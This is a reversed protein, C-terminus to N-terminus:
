DVALAREKIEDQLDIIKYTYGFSFDVYYKFALAISLCHVKEFAQFRGLERPGTEDFLIQEGWDFYLQGYSLGMAFPANFFHKLDLGATYIQAEYPIQDSYYPQWASKQPYFATSVQYRMAQLGLSAPNTLITMPDTHFNLSNCGGAADTLPSAPILLSWLVEDTYAAIQFPMWMEILCIIVSVKFIRSSTLSANLYSM